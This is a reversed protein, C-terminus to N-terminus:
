TNPLKCAWCYLGSMVQEIEELRNLGIATDYAYEMQQGNDTWYWKEPLVEPTIGGFDYQIYAYRSFEENHGSCCATTVYGKNNLMQITPAILDDVEIYKTRPDISILM